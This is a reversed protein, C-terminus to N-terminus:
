NTETEFVYAWGTGSCAPCRDYNYGDRCNGGGIGNCFACKRAVQAVLVTGLGNCTPCRDYIVGDRCRGSGNGSCFACTEPAFHVFPQIRKDM